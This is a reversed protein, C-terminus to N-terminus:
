ADAGDLVRRLQKTRIEQLVPFHEQVLDRLAFYEALCLGTSEADVWQGAEMFDDMDPSTLCKDLRQGEIYFVAIGIQRVSFYKLAPVEKQWQRFATQGSRTFVDLAYLPVGEAEAVPVIKEKRIEFKGRQGEVYQWILPTMIALPYPTRGVVSLCAPVLDGSINLASLSGIAADMDGHRIPLHDSRYRKTGALFWLALAREVLPANEDVVREALDDHHAAALEQRLAAYVPSKEAQIYLSDAMRTKLSRCLLQILYLGTRLDGWNRRQIPNATAILTQILAETDAVGVDELAIIHLRKWFRQRDMNWLSYGARLANNTEGRRIAKQMTSALLYVDGPMPEIAPPEFFRLGEEVRALINELHHTM